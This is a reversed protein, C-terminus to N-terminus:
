LLVQVAVNILLVILSSAGITVAAAETRLGMVERVAHFGYFLSLAWALLGPIAGFLGLALPAVAYGLVRAVAAWSAVSHYAAAGVVRAVLSWLLWNVLVGTALRVLFETRLGRFLSFGALGALVAAALAILAAEATAREDGAIEQYVRHDLRLFRPLRRAIRDLM